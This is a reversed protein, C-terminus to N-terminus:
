AIGQFLPQFSFWGIHAHGVLRHTEEAEKESMPTAGGATATLFQSECCRELAIFWWAAEDVSAGVTLLGHNQLIAARNGGLACAIDDAMEEEVAVGTWNRYVVHDNFFFCSETTIPEVPRGMAAWSSGYRSHAHAASVVDPRAKHIASHIAFAATNLIGDGEIIKGDHDVCLLDRPRIHGFHMGYPNVWFRNPYEPDRATIHGAVGRDFGHQSFVRLAAALHRKRYQREEEVSAFEPQEAFVMTTPRDSM